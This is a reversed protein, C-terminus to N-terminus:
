YWRPDGAKGKGAFSVDKITFNGNEPDTFLATSAGAYATANTFISVIGTGTAAASRYDSTVYSGTITTAGSAAQRIETNFDNSKGFICNKVTIGSTATYSTSYDIFQRNATPLFSDFTCNEVLVSISNATNHLILGYQFGYVTSNTIKINSAVASNQFHIFSYGSRFDNVICQDVVLNTVVHASPAGAQFRMGGNFHDLLCNVFSITGVTATNKQNVFYTLTTTGSNGILGSIEVNKFQVNSLTAGFDLLATGFASTPYIVARDTESLGRIIINKNMLFGECGSVADGAGKTSLPYTAGSALVIVAGDSASAFAAELDAGAALFIDGEILVGSAGRNVENNFIQITYSGNTLGICEKTGTLVDGASLDFSKSIGGSTFVLRTAAKEPTWNVMVAGQGTMYSKYGFFINETPTKFTVTGNWKSDRAPNDPNSKVRASFRQGGELEVTYSNSSVLDGMVFNAPDFLLSDKYIEISYNNAGNVAGWTLEVTTTNGVNNSKFVAPRFLYPLADTEDDRIVADKKCSVATGLMLVAFLAMWLTYFINKMKM